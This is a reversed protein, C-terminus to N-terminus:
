QKILSVPQFTNVIKQYIQYIDSIASFIEKTLCSPFCNTRINKSGMKLDVGVTHRVSRNIIFLKSGGQGWGWQMIM